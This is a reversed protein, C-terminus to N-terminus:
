KCNSVSRVAQNQLKNIRKNIKAHGMLHSMFLSSYIIKFIYTLIYHKSRNLIGCIRSLQKSIYNQHLNCTLNSDIVVGLFKFQTVREVPINSIITNLIEQSKLKRQKSHFGKMKMKAANLSLKNVALWDTIKTLESNINNSTTLDNTQEDIFTNVTSLLTTDEAYM